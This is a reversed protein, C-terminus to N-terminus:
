RRFREAPFHVSGEIEPIEGGRQFRFAETAESTDLIKQRLESGVAARGHDAIDEILCPCACVAADDGAEERHGALGLLNQRGRVRLPFLDRRQRAGGVRRGQAGVAIAIAFSNGAARDRVLFSIRANQEPHQRRDPALFKDPRRM